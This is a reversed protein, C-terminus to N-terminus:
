LTKSKKWKRLTHIIKSGTTANCIMRYRMFAKGIELIYTNPRTSDKLLWKVLEPYVDERGDISFLDAKYFTRKVKFIGGFRLTITLRDKEIRIRTVLADLMWFILLVPLIVLGVWITDVIFEHSNEQVFTEIGSVFMSIMAILVVHGMVVKLAARHTLSYPLKVSAGNEDESVTLDINQPWMTMIRKRLVGRKLPARGRMRATPHGRCATTVHKIEQDIQHAINNQM